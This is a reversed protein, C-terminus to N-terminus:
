YSYECWYSIVPDRKDHETATKLFPQINKLLLPTEPLDPGAM